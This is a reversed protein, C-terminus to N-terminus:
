NADIDTRDASPLGSTYDTLMSCCGATPFSLLTQAGADPPLVPAAGRRLAAAAASPTSIPLYAFREAPPAVAVINADAGPAATKHATQM